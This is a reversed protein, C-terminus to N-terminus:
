LDSVLRCLTVFTIEIPWYSILFTCQIYELKVLFRKGESDHTKNDLKYSRRKQHGAPKPSM